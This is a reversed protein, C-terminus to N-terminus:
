SFCPQLNNSIYLHKSSMKSKSSSILISMASAPRTNLNLKNESSTRESNLQSKIHEILNQNVNNNTPLSSISDNQFNSNIQETKQNIMSSISREAWWYEMDFAVFNNLHSM